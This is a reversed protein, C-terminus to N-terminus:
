KRIDLKSENSLIISSIQREFGVGKYCNLIYIFNRFHLICNVNACAVISSVKITCGYGGCLILNPNYPCFKVAVIAAKAAFSPARLSLDHFSLTPVPSCCRSSPSVTEVATHQHGTLHCLPLDWVLVGGFSTGCVVRVTYNATSCDSVDGNMGAAPAVYPQWAVSTLVARVDDSHSGYSDPAMLEYRHLSDALLVPIDNTSCDDTNTRSKEPLLFIRCRGDGCIVAALGIYGSCDGNVGSFSSYQRLASM